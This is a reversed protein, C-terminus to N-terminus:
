AIVVALGLVAGVDALARKDARIRRQHRRDLDAIAGIHTGAGDDGLVYRGIRQRNAPAPLGNLFAPSLAQSLQFGQAFLGSLCPQYRPRWAAVSIKDCGSM